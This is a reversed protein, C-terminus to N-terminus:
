RDTSNMRIFAGPVSCVATVAFFLLSFAVSSEQAVPTYQAATVFVLERIGIGGITIPLVAAASSVLFVALYDGTNETVGIAHLLTWACAMQILQVALSYLTTSLMIKLFVKAFVFHALALGAVALLAAPLLLYAWPAEPFAFWATLCALIALVLLGSLRDFLVSQFAKTASAGYDRNLVWVKYADGGIGGPLFLNYFMGIWYLRLNSLESLLIGNAHFYQTLRLSSILKSFAYFLVGVFLWAPQAAGIIGALQQTDVQRFVLYLAVASIAIRLAAKAFRPVSPAM